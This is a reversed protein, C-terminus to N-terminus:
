LHYYTEASDTHEFVLLSECDGDEAKLAVPFAFYSNLKRKAPCGVGWTEGAKPSLGHKSTTGAKNERSNQIAESTGPGAQAWTGKVRAEAGEGSCLAICFVL